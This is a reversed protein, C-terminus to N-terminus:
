IAPPRILVACRMRHCILARMMDYILGDKPLDKHGDRKDPDRKDPYVEFWEEVKHEELKNRLEIKPQWVKERTEPRRLQDYLLDAKTAAHDKEHEKDPKVEVGRRVKYGRQKDPSYDLWSSEVFVDATFRHNLLDVQVLKLINVRVRVETESEKKIPPFRYNKKTSREIAQLRIGVISYVKGSASDEQPTENAAELALLQPSEPINGGVCGMNPVTKSRKASRPRAEIGSQVPESESRTVEPAREDLSFGGDVSQGQEPPELFFHEKPTFAKDARFERPTDASHLLAVQDADRYSSVRICLLLPDDLPPDDRPNRKSELRDVAFRGTLKIYHYIWWEADTPTEIPPKEVAPEKVVKHWSEEHSPQGMLNRVYCRPSWLHKKDDIRPFEREENLQKSLLAEMVADPEEGSSGVWEASSQSPSRQSSTGESTVRKKLLDDKTLHWLVEIRVTADFWGHEVSIENIGFLKFWTTVM